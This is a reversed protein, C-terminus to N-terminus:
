DTGKDYIGQGKMIFNSMKKMIEIFFNSLSRLVSCDIAEGGRRKSCLFLHM